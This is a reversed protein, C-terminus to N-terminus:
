NALMQTGFLRRKLGILDMWHAPIAISHFKLKNRNHPLSFYFFNAIQITVTESFNSKPFAFAAFVFKFDSLVM